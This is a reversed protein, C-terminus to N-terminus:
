WLQKRKKSAALEIKKRRKRTKDWDDKWSGKTRKLIHMYSDETEALGSVETVPYIYIGSGRLVMNLAINNSIGLAERYEKPIVVQGKENAKTIIGIKM